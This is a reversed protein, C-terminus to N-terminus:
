QKEERDYFIIGDLHDYEHCFARATFDSVDFQIPNGYRDFGQIKIRRPRAVKCSFNKVSLCAEEDIQVGSQEVMEPNVIEYFKGEAEVIFARKLIGVQVAALGAGNAKKLTDKMDDLLEWLKKDFIEVVKSKKRMLENDDTIIDRIAM